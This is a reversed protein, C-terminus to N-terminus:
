TLPHHILLMNRNNYAWSSTERLEVTWFWRLVDSIPSKYSARKRSKNNIYKNWYELTPWSNFSKSHSRCTVMMLCTKNIAELVVLHVFWYFGEWPDHAVMTSRRQTIMWLWLTGLCYLLHQGRTPRQLLLIFRLMLSLDLQWMLGGAATSCSKQSIKVRPGVIGQDTDLTWPAWVKCWRTRSWVRRRLGQLLKSPNM